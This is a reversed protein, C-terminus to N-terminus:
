GTWGVAPSPMPTTETVPCNTGIRSRVRRKPQDARTTFVMLDLIEEPMDTNVNAWPKPGSASIPYDHTWRGSTLLNALDKAADETM